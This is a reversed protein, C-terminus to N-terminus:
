LRGDPTEIARLAMSNRGKYQGTILQNGIKQKNDILAQQKQIHEQKRKSLHEKDIRSLEKAVAAKCQKLHAQHDKPNPHSSM